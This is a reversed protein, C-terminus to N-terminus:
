RAASSARRGRRRRGGGVFGCVVGEVLMSAPWEITWWAHSWAWEAALGITGIGIGAAAGLAIPKDRRSACRSRRSWWRRSSTSRSTRCDHPRVAASVLLTLTGRILSSSCRPAWRPAAARGLDAGRRARREGRADAPDPPLRAPVAPRAYDFEGQFTSLGILFAGGLLVQQVRM